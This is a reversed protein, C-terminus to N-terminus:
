SCMCTGWDHCCVKTWQECSSCWSMQGGCSPCRQYRPRLRKLEFNRKRKNYRKRWKAQRKEEKQEKTLKNM